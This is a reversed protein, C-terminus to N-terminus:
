MIRLGKPYFNKLTGKVEKGWGLSFGHVTVLVWGRNGGTSLTEGRLYKKIEIDNLAIHHKVDAPSLAMALAHNPEFRNKKLTGLHLGPRLVRLGSLDPAKDPLLFVQDNQSFMPGQLRVNLFRAEFEHYDKLQKQNIHRKFLPVAVQANDQDNKKLKAVFHGEGNIHHPWLRATFALEPLQRPSWEPRGEDVGAPKEIPMLTMDQHRSLFQDIQAENEEPAFTCTSYVLTGGPKLMRYAHELINKQWVACERVHEPSWYEAAEPDKRFMGEGSCPADVLIRDFYGPFKEALREPTENTVIAQTIGMREVNESLAKARKTNIDNTVLLGTDHMKAAIQTTKGGPAACLDLVTEGPQPDLVEAPFMASPEQIYYLGAQHFPHKGPADTENVYFGTPCFPIPELEFPALKTFADIDVKLTNIRLATQKPDCYTNLFDHVEDGLMFEMREVYQKPLVM